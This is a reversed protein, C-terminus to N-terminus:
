RLALIQSPPIVIHCRLGNPDFKLDVEADLARALNREIVM